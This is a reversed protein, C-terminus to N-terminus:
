SKSFCRKMGCVEFLIYLDKFVNYKPKKGGKYDKKGEGCYMWEIAGNTRLLDLAAEFPEVIHKQTNRDGRMVKDCSPITDGCYALLAQVSIIDSTGAKQNSHMSCHQALKEGIYFANSNREDIKLLNVPYMAVYSHILYLAAEETFKFYLIDDKISAWQCIRMMFCSKREEFELSINYLSVLDKKLENILDYKRRRDSRGIIRMYEDISISIKLNPEESRYRNQNTLILICIRLLKITSVKIRLDLLAYDKIEVSGTKRINATGADDVAPPSGCTNIRSLQNTGPGNFVPEFRGELIIKEKTLEKRWRRCTAVGIDLSEAIESNLKGINALRKFEDKVEESKSM